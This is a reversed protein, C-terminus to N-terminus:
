AWFRWWKKKPMAEQRKIEDEVDSDLKAWKNGIPGAETKALAADMFQSNRVKLEALDDELMRLRHTLRDIEHNKEQIEREREKLEKDFCVKAKNLAEVMKAMREQLDDVAPQWRRKESERMEHMASRAKELENKVDSFNQAALAYKGMNEEFQARTQEVKFPGGKEVMKPHQRGEGWLSWGEPHWLHTVRMKRPMEIKVGLNSLRINMDEDEGGYGVFGENYGNVEEFVERHIINCYGWFEHCTRAENGMQNLERRHAGYATMMDGSQVIEKLAYACSPELLLDIDLFCFWDGKALSAGVNRAYALNFPEFKNKVPFIFVPPKHPLIDKDDLDVIVVEYEFDLRM